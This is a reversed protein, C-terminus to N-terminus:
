FLPSSFLNLSFPSLSVLIYSSLISPLFLSMFLSFITFISSFLVGSFLFSCSIPSSVQYLPLSSNLFLIQFSTGDSVPCVVQESTHTEINIPTEDSNFTLAPIYKNEGTLKTLFTFWPEICFQTSAHYRPLNLAQPTILELEPHVGKWHFGWAQPIRDSKAMKPRNETRIRDAQLFHSFLIILLFSIFVEISIESRTFFHHKGAETLLNEKLLKEEHPILLSPRGVKGPVRGRKFADVSRDFVGRPIGTRELIQKRSIGEAFHLRVAAEALSEVEEM